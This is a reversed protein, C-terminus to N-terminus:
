ETEILIGKMSGGWRSWERFSVYIGMCIINKQKLHIEKSTESNKICELLMPITDINFKPPIYIPQLFSGKVLFGCSFFINSRPLWEPLNSSSWPGPLEAHRWSKQSELKIVQHVPGMQLIIEGPIEVAMPKSNTVHTTGLITPKGGLDDM